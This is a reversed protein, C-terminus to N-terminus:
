LHSEHVTIEGPVQVNPPHAFHEPPALGPCNDLLQCRHATRRPHRLLSMASTVRFSFFLPFDKIVKHAGLQLCCILTQNAHGHGRQRCVAFTKKSCQSLHQLAGKHYDREEQTYPLSPKPRVETCRVGM